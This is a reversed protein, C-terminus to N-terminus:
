RRSTTAEGRSWRWRLDYQQIKPDPTVLTLGHARAQSVLLRDFPDRHLLPLKELGVVTATDHPWLDIMHRRALPLILTSPPKPLALKGLQYKIIIELLTVDSFFVENGLDTLDARLEADIKKSGEFVWILTCTDLLFRM